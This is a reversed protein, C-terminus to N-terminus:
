VNEKGHGNRMRRVNGIYLAHIKGTHGNMATLPEYHDWACAEYDEMVIFPVDEGYYTSWVVEGVGIKLVANLVAQTAALREERTRNVTVNNSGTAWDKLVRDFEQEIVTKFMEM